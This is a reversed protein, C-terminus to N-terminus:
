WYISDPDNSKLIKNLIINLTLVDPSLFPEVAFKYVFKELNELESIQCLVLNYPVLLQSGKIATSKMLQIIKSPDDSSKTLILLLDHYVNVKEISSNSLCIFRILKLIKGLIGDFDKELTQNNRILSTWYSILSSTLSPDLPSNNISAEILATNYIDEVKLNNVLKNLNLSKALIGYTKQNPKIGIDSMLNYVNEIKTSSQPLPSVAWSELLSNFISCTPIIGKDLLSNFFTETYIPAKSKLSISWANAISEYVELEPTYLSNQRMHNLIEFAIEPGNYKRSISIRNILIKYVNYSPQVKSKTLFYFFDLMIDVSDLTSFRILKTYILDILSNEVIHNMEKKMLILIEITVKIEYLNSASNCIKELFKDVGVINELESKKIDNAILSRVISLYISYTLKQDLLLSSKLIQLIKESNNVSIYYTLLVTNAQCNYETQNNEVLESIFSLIEISSNPNVVFQELLSPSLSVEKSLNFNDESLSESKIPINSYFNSSKFRNYSKFRLNPLKILLCSYLINFLSLFRFSIMKQISSKINQYRQM